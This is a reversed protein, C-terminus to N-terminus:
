KRTSQAKQPDPMLMAAILYGLLAIGTVLAIITEFRV